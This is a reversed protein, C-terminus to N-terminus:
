VICLLPSTSLMSRFMRHLFYQHRTASNVFMSIGSKFIPSFASILFVIIRPVKEFLYISLSHCHPVDLYHICSWVCLFFCVCVCMLTLSPFHCQVHTMSLAEKVSLFNTNIVCDCIIQLVYSFILIHIKVILLSTLCSV